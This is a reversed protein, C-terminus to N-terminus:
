TANTTAWTWTLKEAMTLYSFRAMGLGLDSISESTAVQGITADYETPAMTGADVNMYPDVKISSVYFVKDAHTSNFAM